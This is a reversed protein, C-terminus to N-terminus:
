RFNSFVVFLPLFFAKEQALVNPLIVILMLLSLLIGSLLTVMLLIVGLLFFV